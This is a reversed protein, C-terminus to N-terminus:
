NGCKKSELWIVLVVKFKEIVQGYFTKVFEYEIDGRRRVIYLLHQRM